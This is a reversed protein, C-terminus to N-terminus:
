GQYELIWKWSVVGCSRPRFKLSIKGQSFVSMGFIVSDMATEEKPSTNSLVRPIGINEKMIGSWMNASSIGFFNEGSKLCVNWFNGFVKEWLLKILLSPFNLTSCYINSFLVISIHFKHLPLNGYANNPVLVSLM